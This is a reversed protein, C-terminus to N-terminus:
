AGVVQWEILVSGAAIGSEAAFSLRPITFAKALLSV